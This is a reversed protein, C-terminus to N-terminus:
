ENADSGIEIQGQIEERNQLRRGSNQVCVSSNVLTYGPDCTHCVTMSCSNFVCSCGLCNSPCPRCTGDFYSNVYRQQCSTCNIAPVPTSHSPTLLVYQCSYCHEPCLQCVSYFQIPTTHTSRAYIPVLAAIDYCETCNPFSGLTLQCAGWKCYPCPNPSVLVLLLLILM